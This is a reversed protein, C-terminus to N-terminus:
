LYNDCSLAWAGPQSYDVMGLLGTQAEKASETGQVSNLVSDDYLDSFAASSDLAASTQAAEASDVFYLQNDNAIDVTDGALVPVAVLVLAVAFLTSLNKKLM